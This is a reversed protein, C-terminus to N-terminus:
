VFNEAALGSNLVFVFALWATMGLMVIGSITSVHSFSISAIVAVVFMASVLLVGGGISEMGFFVAAWVIHLAFLLGGQIAPFREPTATWALWCAFAMPVLLVMWVVGIVPGASLLAPQALDDYWGRQAIGSVMWVGITVAAVVGFIVAARVVEASERRPAEADTGIETATGNM